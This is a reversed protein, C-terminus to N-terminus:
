APQRESLHLDARELEVQIVYQTVKLKVFEDLTMSVTGDNTTITVRNQAGDLHMRSQPM